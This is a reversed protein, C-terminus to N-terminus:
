GKDDSLIMLGLIIIVMLRFLPSRHPTNLEDLSYEFYHYWLPGNFGARGTIYLNHNYTQIHKEEM